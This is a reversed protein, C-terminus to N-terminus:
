QGGRPSWRFQLSFQIPAKGQMQPSQVDTLDKSARLRDRVKLLSPYDRAIGRCTIIGPDKIEIRKASVSGDEPFAETLRHLISMTRFSDDFWPRFRRIQQQMKDLETVRPKMTEWKSRWHSLQWQQVLFALVVLLAVTGAAGSAWALRGSSYRNNFQQWASVRPPLFEFEAGQGALLRAALSLGPAVVADAPMAAGAGFQNQAYARVVEVELGMLKARSTLDDAFREFYERNGFIRLKRVSDRFEAPLQGLTIRLDRAVVDAYPVKRVGDQEMAGELARLAAIGGGCTVQLEVNNESLGLAALGEGPAGAVPQLAPMGLSFSLPKLQAAKLIKQLTALHEKPVAILTALEAGSPARCHSSAISLTDPAFPFGREAETNLFAEVDEPPLEPVQVHQTLAWDLPLCVACQRESIGAHNLHNRIERGVLEPADTLLNLELSAAFANQVRFGDGSRRLVVAELRRGDLSIGLLSSGPRRNRSLFERPDFDSLNLKPLRIM